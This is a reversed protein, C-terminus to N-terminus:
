ARVGAARPLIAVLLAEVVLEFDVKSIRAAEFREPLQYCLDVEGDPDVVVGSYM